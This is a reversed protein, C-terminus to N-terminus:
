LGMVEYPIVDCDLAVGWMGESYVIRAVVSSCLSVSKLVCFLFLLM